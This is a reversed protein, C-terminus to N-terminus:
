VQLNNETVEFLELVQFLELAIGDLCSVGIFIDFIEIASM